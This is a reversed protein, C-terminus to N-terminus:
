KELTSKGLLKLRTHQASDLKRLGNKWGFERVTNSSSTVNSKVEIAIKKNILSM